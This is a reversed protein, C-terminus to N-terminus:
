KVFGACEDKPEWFKPNDSGCEGVLRATACEVEPEQNDGTVVEISRSWGAVSHRCLWVNLGDTTLHEALRCDKCCRM